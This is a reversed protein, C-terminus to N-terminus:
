RGTAEAVLDVAKELSTFTLQHCDVRGIWAILEGVNHDTLRERVALCEGMIWGASRVAGCRALRAPPGDKDYRPFIIHSVPAPDRAVKGSPPPVYRIAKADARLHVPLAEIQPYYPAIVDWGTSKIGMALPM